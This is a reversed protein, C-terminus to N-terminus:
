SRPPCTPTSRLRCSPTRLQSFQPGALHQTWPASLFPLSDIRSMRSPQLPPLAGAAASVCKFLYFNIAGGDRCPEYLQLLCPGLSLQLKQEGGWASGPGGQVSVPAGLPLPRGSADLLLPPVPHAGSDPFLDSPPMGAPPGLGSPRKSQMQLELEEDPQYEQVFQLLSTMLYTRRFSINSEVSDPKPHLGSSTVPCQADAISQAM